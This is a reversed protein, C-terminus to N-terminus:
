VRSFVRSELTEICHQKHVESIYLNNSFIDRDSLTITPTWSHQSRSSLSTYLYSRMPYPMRTVLILVRQFYIITKYPGWPGRPIGPYIPRLTTSQVISSHKLYKSSIVRRHSSKFKVKHICKWPSGPASPGFPKVPGPPFLTRKFGDLRQKM